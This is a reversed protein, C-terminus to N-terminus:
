LNRVLIVKSSSIAHDLGEKNALYKIYMSLLCQNSMVMWELSDSHTQTGCTTRSYTTFPASVLSTSLGVRMDRAEEPGLLARNIAGDSYATEIGM